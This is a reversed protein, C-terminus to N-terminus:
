AYTRPPLMCIAAFSASTVANSANQMKGNEDHGFCAALDVVGEVSGATPGALSALSALSALLSTCYSSCRFSIPTNVRQVNNGGQERSGAM